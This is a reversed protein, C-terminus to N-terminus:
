PKERRKMDNKVNVWNEYIEDRKKDKLKNQLISVLEYQEDINLTDINEVIEYFSM